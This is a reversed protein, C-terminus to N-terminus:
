RGSITLSLYRGDGEHDSPRFHLVLNEADQPVQRVLWGEAEGGPYLEFFIEPDPVVLSPRKEEVAEHGVISFGDDTTYHPGEELGIYRLQMKVLVYQVGESPPDNFQNTALLMGWADEGTVVETLEVQWDATTVRQGFPAPDNVETGIETPEISQLAEPIAISADPELAVYLYGEDFAFHEDVVLMLNQEGEYIQYAAWGVSETEGPLYTELRPEPEVINADFSYHILLRNGTVHLGLSAEDTETSNNKIWYKILLYERGNLAPENNSNAARILEWATEGRQTELVVVDWNNQTILESNAPLPNFRGNGKEITEEAQTALVATAAAYATALAPPTEENDTNAIPVDPTEVPLAQCAAAFVLLLLWSLLYRSQM